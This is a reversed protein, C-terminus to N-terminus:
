AANIGRFLRVAVATMDDKAVGGYAQLASHLLQHTLQQPNGTPMTKLVDYLDTTSAFAGTIGDSL